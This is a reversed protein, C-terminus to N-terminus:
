KQNKVGVANEGYLLANCIAAAITSGGKRGRVVIHPVDCGLLKEKSEEVNVFGVPVGIILAPKAKGENVLDILRLLATPANGIAFIANPYREVAKEVAVVARTVGREKAELAVDEDGMLCFAQGGYEKLAKKSVGSLAMNTDTIINAGQKLANRGISVSDKSFFLLEEFSFDATSHIVRQVVWSEEKNGTWERMQSRIIEFSRAEIEEPKYENWM